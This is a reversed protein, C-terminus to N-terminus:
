AWSGRWWDEVKPDQPHPRAHVSGSPRCSGGRAAPRKLAPLRRQVGRPVSVVVESPGSLGGAASPPYVAAAWRDLLYKAHLISSKRGVDGLQDSVEQQHEEDAADHHQEHGGPVLRLEAGVEGDTPRKCAKRRKPSITINPTTLPPWKLGTTVSAAAAIRRM